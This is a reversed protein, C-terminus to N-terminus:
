YYSVITVKIVFGGSEREFRKSVFWKLYFFWLENKLVIMIM